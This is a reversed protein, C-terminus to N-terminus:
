VTTLQRAQDIWWDVVAAIEAETLWASQVRIPDTTGNPMYLADGEGTLREAGNQGIIVRSDVDSGTKLAIRTTINAKVLPTVVDVSPRQTAIILHLGAARGKQSIRKIATEVKEKALLILEALEDIITILRALPKIPQGDAGIIRGARAAANFSNINKHGYASMLTYRQDMEACISELSAPAQEIDTVIPKWLHPLRRYPTFEVQKPDILMLRLMEPTNRLLFSVILANLVGSKGGGSAGAVLVHLIKDLDGLVPQGDIARGLGALLPSRSGSAASTRMIDGLSVIERTTNPVELGITSRGEIVSLLRINKTKAAGQFERELNIVRKVTVARGRQIEYRTVTPGRMYDIVSADVRFEELTSQLAEAIDDCEDTRSKHASGRGLLQLPPLEAHPLPPLSPEPALSPAPAATADTPAPSRAPVAPTAATTPAPITDTVANAAAPTSPAAVPTTAPAASATADAAQDPRARDSFPSRPATAADEDAEADEHAEVDDDAATTRLGGPVTLANIAAPVDRVGIGLMLRLGALIAIALLPGALWLGWTPGFPATIMWGPLGGAARVAALGGHRPSPLGSALAAIGLAGVYAVAVGSLYQGTRHPRHAHRFLRWAVLLAIVPLIWALGGGVDHALESILGLPQAPAPWWTLSALAAASLLAALGAGDRRQEIAMDPTLPARVVTGVGFACARLVGGILRTITDAFAGSSRAAARRKGPRPASPRPSQRASATRRPPAASRSAAPKRPRRATSTRRPRRRRTTPM